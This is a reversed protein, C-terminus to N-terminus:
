QRAYLTTSTYTCIYKSYPDWKLTHVYVGVAHVTYVIYRKGVTFLVINYTCTCTNLITPLDSNAVYPNVDNLLYLVSLTHKNMNYVGLLHQKLSIDM